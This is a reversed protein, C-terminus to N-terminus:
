PTFSRYFRCPYNTADQDVFNLLGNADTNTTALNVWVPNCLNTAAQISCSTSAAGYYSLVKQGGSLPFISFPPPVPAADFTWNLVVSRNQPLLGSTSPGAPGNYVVQGFSGPNGSVLAVTMAIHIMHGAPITVPAPLLANPIAWNVTQGHNVDKSPSATTDVILTQTGTAPNYDFFQMEGTVSFDNASTTATNRMYIVGGGKDSVVLSASSTLKPSYFDYTTTGSFALATENTGFTSDVIQATLGSHIAEPSENRLALWTQTALVNTGWICLPTWCALHIALTNKVNNTQKPNEESIQLRM